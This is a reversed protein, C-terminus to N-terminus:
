TARQSRLWVKEIVLTSIHDPHNAACDVGDENLRPTWPYTWLKFHNRIRRGLSDHLTILQDKELRAFELQGASSAKQLWGEVEDAMNTITPRTLGPTM